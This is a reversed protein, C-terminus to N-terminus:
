AKKILLLVGLNSYRQTKLKGISTNSKVLKKRDPKTIELFFKPYQSPYHTGRFTGWLFISQYYM